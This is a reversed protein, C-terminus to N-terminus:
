LEFPDLPSADESQDPADDPARRRIIIDGNPLMEPPHYQAMGRLRDLLTDLEPEIEAFGRELERLQPTLDSMFDQLLREFFDFLPAAEEPVAGEPANEGSGASAAYPLALCFCLTLSCAFRKM